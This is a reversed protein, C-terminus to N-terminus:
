PRTTQGRRDGRRAALQLAVGALASDVEGGELFAQALSQSAALVTADRGESGLWTYLTPRVLSVAEAEGDVKQPGFREMAPGLTARASTDSM